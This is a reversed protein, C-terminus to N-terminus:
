FKLTIGFLVTHDVEAKTLGYKYGADIDISDSVSYIVGGLLFAPNENSSKDSNKEIGVNAVLKLGNAVTLESAISAHWLSVREDLDNENMIYRVNVHVAWPDCEKTAILFLSYATKGSGLGKDKDGTPISVVPKFAFSLGDAEFFKWKLAVETDGVGKERVTTDSEESSNWQYSSGISVDIKDTVGYTFATALPISTSTVGDSKDHDYEGNIEIQYKGEGQVGADDTILPHAAFSKSSVMITILVFFVLLSKKLM